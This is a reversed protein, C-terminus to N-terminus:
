DQGERERQLDAETIEDGDFPDYPRPEPGRYKGPHPGKELPTSL